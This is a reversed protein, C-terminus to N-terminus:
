LLFDLIEAREAAGYSPLLVTEGGGGSIAGVGDFLAGSSGDLTLTLAAARASRPLLLSLLLLLLLLLHLHPLTQLGM